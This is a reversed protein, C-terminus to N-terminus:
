DSTAKTAYEYGSLYASRYLTKYRARPIDPHLGHDPVVKYRDQDAGPTGKGLERDRKGDEYGDRYGWRVAFATAPQEEHYYREYGPARAPLGVPLSQSQAPLVIPLGFLLLLIVATAKASSRPTRLRTHRERRIQM